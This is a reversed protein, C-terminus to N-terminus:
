CPGDGRRGGVFAGTRLDIVLPWNSFVMPFGPEISHVMVLSALTEALSQALFGAMTAPARHRRGPRRYHQLDSHPARCVQLRRRRCGGRYRMPSIVPSIHAKVFPREAFTGPGGASAIDLMEVIPDVHEALTFSTAVPKTTYQRAPRLRHQRGSDFNDPVDTAVCCRTFWSVNELTDQLRTFTTSIARPDLPPLPWGDLDLTQVAAGGTGFHVAEGGVVISRAARRQGHLTFVKSAKISPMWSWRSAAAPVQGKGNDVDCGSALLTKRWITPCKAWAWSKSCGCRPRSSPSAPRSESLAAQLRRRAPRSPLSPVHPKAARLAM